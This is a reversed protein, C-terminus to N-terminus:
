NSPKRAMLIELAQQYVETNSRKEAGPKAYLTDMTQVIDMLTIKSPFKNQFCHKYSTDFDKGSYTDVQAQFLCVDEIQSLAGMIFAIKNNLTRGEWMRFKEEATFAYSSQGLLILILLIHRM